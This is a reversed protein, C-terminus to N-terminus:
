PRSCFVTIQDPNAETSAVLWREDAMTATCPGFTCIRIPRSETEHRLRQLVEALIAGTFPTYLYFVTGQSLDAERADQQLFTIRELRLDRACHQASAIYAQEREVGIARAGTCISALLPIHGLGSGLDILVDNESLATLRLLRFIHRAPTPQYFVMGETPHTPPPDPKDLVLLSSVMEDLYDFRLGGAPVTDSDLWQSFLSQRTGQQIEARIIQCLEDNMAELHARLAILRPVNQQDVLPPDM